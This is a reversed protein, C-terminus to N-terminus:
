NLVIRPAVGGDPRHPDRTKGSPVGSGTHGADASARCRYVNTSRDSNRRFAPRLFLAHAARLATERSMGRSMKEEVSADQFSRLEEQIEANRQNRRVLARIGDFGKRLMAM